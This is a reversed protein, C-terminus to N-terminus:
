ISKLMLSAFITFYIQGNPGIPSKVTVTAPFAKPPPCLFMSKKKDTDLVFCFSVPFFLYFLFLIFIFLQIRLSYFLFLLAMQSYLLCQLMTFCCIHLSLFYWVLILLHLHSDLAVMKQKSGHLRQCYPHGCNIVIFSLLNMPEWCLQTNRPTLMILAYWFIIVPLHSKATHYNASESEHAGSLLSFIHIHTPPLVYFMVKKWQLWNCYHWYCVPESTSTEALAWHLHIHGM